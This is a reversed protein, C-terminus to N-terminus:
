ARLDVARNLGLVGSARGAFLQDPFVLGEARSFAWSQSHTSRATSNVGALCCFNEAIAGAM